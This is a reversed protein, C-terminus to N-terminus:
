CLQYEPTSMIFHAIRSAREDIPALAAQEVLWHRMQKDPPAQLLRAALSDVLTAADSAVATGVIQALQNTPAGFRALQGRLPLPRGRISNAQLPVQGALLYASLNYRLLLTTTDIWTEGGDWGKVNPPFLLDQGLGRMVALLAAENVTVGLVRVSGIVLQAPSKIQSRCTQPSYFHQSCFIAHLTPKFECHNARLVSATEEVVAPEPTDTAFFQLLKAAMFRATCPQKLIIDIADSGDLNGTEGLFTKVGYDHERENFVFQDGRFTWGTFARAAAKVDDEAYNGIGMTFLEMLERAYNENPHQRRNTNNDLYRLM